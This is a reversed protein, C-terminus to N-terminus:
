EELIDLLEKLEGHRLDERESKDYITLLLVRENQVQVLTIIRAGGSKGSSKSRIALRVKYCNKGLSDGIRPTEALEEALDSLDVKLSTHKRLLPKLRKIFVDTPKVEFGM